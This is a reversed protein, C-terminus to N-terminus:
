IEMQILKEEKIQNFDFAMKSKNKFNNFMKFLFYHCLFHAKYPIKTINDPNKEFEPFISVPLIHHKEWEGDYTEFYKIMKFYGDLWRKKVDEKKLKNIV